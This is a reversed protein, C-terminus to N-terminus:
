KLLIMKKINTFIEKGDIGNAQLSYIYIGSTLNGANWKVSYSGADKVEDVLKTVLQGLLNYVSLTVYSTYPVTFSISTAPNFPNPYNQQLEFIAPETINVNIINSYNFSGNFDIQKLRYYYTKISVKNDSYAYNNIESVTGRGKVFGIKNFLKGNDSRQIEFGANNIETATTWKLEVKKYNVVSASFSTLEVPVVAGTDKKLRIIGDSLPNGGLYTMFNLGLTDINFNGNFIISDVSASPVDPAKGTIMGTSDGSFFMDGYYENNGSVNFGNQDYTGTLTAPGPNKGVFINGKLDITLSIASTPENIIVTVIASDSTSFTNNYWMGRWIGQFDLPKFQATVPLSIIFLILIVKKM